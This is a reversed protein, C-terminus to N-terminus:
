MTVYPSLKDDYQKIDTKIGNKHEIRTYAHYFVSLWLLVLIRCHIGIELRLGFLMFLQIRNNTQQCQGNFKSM